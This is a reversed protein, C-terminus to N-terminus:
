EVREGAEEQHALEIQSEMDELGTQIHLKFKIVDDLMKLVQRYLNEKIANSMHVLQDYEIGVSQTRQELQHYGYQVDMRMQNLERELKETEAKSATTEANM